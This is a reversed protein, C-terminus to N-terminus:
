DIGTVTVGRSSAGGGVQTPPCWAGQRGRRVADAPERRQV